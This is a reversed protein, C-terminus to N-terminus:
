TYNLELRNKLDKFRNRITVETIDAANAIDFQSKQEGTRICSAYVVTAALGMPDKGASLGSNVVDNMLNIAQHKTRESINVKNAVRAICKTTDIMPLKLDLEIIIQRYCKAISKRKINSIIAIDDLTRPVGMQRCVIYIAAALLASVSRGRTLGREQSKRYIYATKEIIVDPLGLKDKLTRLENFAFRLNRDTSTYVQTRFDWTRLRHITSRMSPEIKSGSADKDTKGIVTSLGMDSRALSTPMGTRVREPGTTNFFRRSEQRTEQIKDSVVMGCKSCIVEGSKPDTIIANDSKCLPCVTFTESKSNVIDNDDKSENLLIRNSSVIVMNNVFLIHLM